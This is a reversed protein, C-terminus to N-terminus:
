SLWDTEYASIGSVTLEDKALDEDQHLADYLEWFRADEVRSLVGFDPVLEPEDEERLGLKDGGVGVQQRPERSRPGEM